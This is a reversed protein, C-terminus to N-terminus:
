RPAAWSRADVMMKLTACAHPMLGFTMITVSWFSCPRTVDVAGALERNVMAM